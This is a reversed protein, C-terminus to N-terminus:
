RLRRTQARFDIRHTGSRGQDPHVLLPSGPPRRAKWAPYARTLLDDAWRGYWSYNVRREREIEDLRGRVVGDRGSFIPRNTGIEYFRAWLPPAAPDPVVAVDGTDGAESSERRELRLGEIRVSGLWAVAAEVAEAVDPPPPNITLLFAVVEVTEKGAISPHEYSRAGRPELTREDHQQCWGTRVGHVRIQAVLITRVGDRVAAAARSRRREDVFAYPPAATEVDHLLALVNTMAGDNFTVFRSYDKRLPFYQPWGGGPYQAAFLYDLGSRFASRFREVRTADVIRALYRLQTITAGNDITSDTLAKESAVAAREAADLPRVMDINKPWGGTRRQYLLLNDAVRAAEATAYWGSPRDLLPELAHVGEVALVAGSSLVGFVALFCILPESRTV